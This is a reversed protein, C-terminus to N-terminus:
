LLRLGTLAVDHQDIPLNAVLQEKFGLGLTPIHSPVQILLKDYCGFGFGLRHFQKDFALGPIFALTLASPHVQTCLLPDPELFGYPHPLLQDLSTVQYLTLTNNDLKPLVLSFNKILEQNLLSTDLEDQFSSYSLVLGPCALQSAEEAVLHRRPTPILARLKRM